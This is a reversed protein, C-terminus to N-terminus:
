RSETPGPKGVGAAAKEATRDLLAAKLHEALLEPQELPGFHGWQSKPLLVSQASPLREALYNHTTLFASGADYVLVVPTQINPINDLTLEGVDEYDRVVTTTDLLRLFPKPNRPLGNLPGWKKPVQLSLRLLYDLDCRHQPPVEQGSRRLFENWYNWGEWDERQRIRVLAPLAAEVAIVQRVRRPSRYALYLAIDAGFSHGVLSAQRIDLADLLQELDSAMDGATYGTPPMSSYGHGRLDYTLLQFDDWLHPIIRLHWVALNGTLGHIMVVDPGSGVREYHITVGNPLLAKM